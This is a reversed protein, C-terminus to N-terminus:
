EGAKYRYSSIHRARELLDYNDFAPNNEYQWIKNNLLQNKRVLNNVKDEYDKKDDEAETMIEDIRKESDERIKKVMEEQNALLEAKDRKYFLYQGLIVLILAIIVGLGIKNKLTM